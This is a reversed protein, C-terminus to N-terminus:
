LPVEVCVDRKTYYSDSWMSKYKAELENVAKEVKSADRAITARFPVSVGGVSLEIRPDKTVNKFWNNDSGKTPVIIVKRGDLVFWVPTSFRKKSKRGTVTIEVENARKLRNLFDDPSTGKNMIFKLVKPSKFVMKFFPCDSCFSTVRKSLGKKSLIAHRM